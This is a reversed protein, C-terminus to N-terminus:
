CDSKLNRKVIYSHPILLIVLIMKYTKIYMKNEKAALVFYNLAEKLNNQKYLSYGAEFYRISKAEKYYKRGKQLTDPFDAAIKDLIILDKIALNYKYSSLSGSRIRYYALPKGIYGGKFYYAIKLWMYHDETSIISREECFLGAKEFCEKKVLPTPSFIFNDKLLEFFIYGSFPKKSKMITDGIKGTEDLLYMDSFVFHFDHNKQIFEMQIELKEPAWLDDSDVFAIYKGKSNRIGKNRAAAPGGNEQYIYKIKDKHKDIYNSVLDKTNDTSGDDVVIIEFDSFTQNLVSDLTQFLFDACNYAPIVVSVAPM